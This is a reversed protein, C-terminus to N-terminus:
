FLQDEIMMNNLSKGEIICTNYTIYIEKLIRKGDRVYEIKENSTIKKIRLGNYDYEFHNNGYQILKNNDWLLTNGKYNIPNLSNDYTIQNNDYSILKNDKDYEFDIYSSNLLINNDSLDHIGKSIINNKEDYSYTYTHNLEDSDLRILRNLGDYYYRTENHNIISRIINGCKDYYFCEKQIKKNFTSYNNKILLLQVNKVFVMKM